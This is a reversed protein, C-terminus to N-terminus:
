SQDAPIGVVAVGGARQLLKLNLIDTYFRISEELNTTDFHLHHVRASKERESPFLEVLNGESDTFVVGPLRGCAQSSEAAAIDRVLPSTSRVKGAIKDFDNKPVVFACRPYSDVDDRKPITAKTQSFLGIHNEGLKLFIRTMSPDTQKMLVRAGLIETYFKEAREPAMVPLVFHDLHQVTGAARSETAM